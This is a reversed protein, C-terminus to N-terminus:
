GNEQVMKCAPDCDVVPCYGLHVSNDGLPLLIHFPSAFPCVRVGAQDCTKPDYSQCIVSVDRLPEQGSKEYKRKRKREIRRRDKRRKNASM